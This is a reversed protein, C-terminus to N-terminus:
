NVAAADHFRMQVCLGAKPAAGAAENEDDDAPPAVDAAVAAQVVCRLLAL